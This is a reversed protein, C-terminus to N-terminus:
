QRREGFQWDYDKKCDSNRVVGNHYEDELEPVYFALTGDGDWFWGMEIGNSHKFWRANQIEEVDCYGWSNPDTDDPRFPRGWIFEFERATVGTEVFGDRYEFTSYCGYHGKEPFAWARLIEGLADPHDRAVQCYDAIIETLASMSSGELTERIATSGCRDPDGVAPHIAVQGGLLGLARKLETAFVHAEHAHRGADTVRWWKDKQNCDKFVFYEGYGLRWLHNLYHASESTHVNPLIDTAHSFEGEASWKILLSLAKYIKIQRAEASARARKTARRKSNTEIRKVRDVFLM